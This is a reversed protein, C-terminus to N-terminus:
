EKKTKSRTKEKTPQNLITGEAFEDMESNYQPLAKQQVHANTPGRLNDYEKKVMAATGLAGMILGWPGLLASVAWFAKLGVAYGLAKTVTKLPGRSWLCDVFTSNGLKSRLASGLGGCSVYTEVMESSPSSNPTFIMGGISIRQLNPLRRKYKTFVRTWDDGIGLERGVVVGKDSSVVLEQLGVMYRIKDCDFVDFWADQTLKKQLIMPVRELDENQMHPVFLTDNILITGKATFELQTILSYDGSCYESIQTMLIETLERRNFMTILTGKPQMRFINEVGERSLKPTFSQKEQGKLVNDAAAGLKSEVEKQKINTILAKTQTEYQIYLKDVNLKIQKSQTEITKDIDVGKEALKNQLAYINTYQNTLHEYFQKLRNWEVQLGQLSSQSSLVAGFSKFQEFNGQLAQMKKQLESDAEVDASITEMTDSPLITGFEDIEEVTTNEPVDADEETDFLTLDESYNQQITSKETTQTYISQIGEISTSENLIDAFPNGVDSDSFSQVSTELMNGWINRSFKGAAGVDAQFIGEISMDALYDEVTEYNLKTQYNIFSLLMDYLHNFRQVTEERSLNSCSMLYDALGGFGIEPNLEMNGNVERLIDNYLVKNKLAEPVRKYMEGVCGTGDACGFAGTNAAGKYDPANEDYDNELLTLYSKFVTPVGGTSNRFTFYGSIKADKLKDNLEVDKITAGLEGNVLQTDVVFDEQAKDSTFVEKDYKYDKNSNEHYIGYRGILINSTLSLARFNAPLYDNEILPAQQSIMIFRVKGTKKDTELSKIGKGVDSSGSYPNYLTNLNTIYKYVDALKKAAAVEEASKKPTKLKSDSDVEELLIRLQTIMATLPLFVEDYVALKLKALEDWIFYVCQMDIGLSNMLEKGGDVKVTAARFSNFAFILQLLKGTKITTLTEIIKEPSDFITVQKEVLTTTGGTSKEKEKYTFNKLLQLVEPDRFFSPLNQVTRYRPQISAFGKVNKANADQSVIRLNTGYRKNFAQEFRWLLIATDPKCDLYLFGTGRAIMTDMLNLTLVGKGSRSAAFISMGFTEDSELNIKFDAGDLTKGLVCSKDGNLADFGKGYLRRFATYGFDIKAYYATLDLIIKAYMFNTFAKDPKISIQTSEIDLIMKANTFSSDLKSKQAMFTTFCPRTVTAMEVGVSAFFEIQYTEVCVPLCCFTLPKLLYKFVCKNIEHIKAKDTLNDEKEIKHQLNTNAKNIIDKWFKHFSMYHMLCNLISLRIGKTAEKGKYQKYKLTYAGTKLDEDYFVGISSAYCAQLNVLYQASEGISQMEFESIDQISIGLVLNNDEAYTKFVEWLESAFHSRPTSYNLTSTNEDLEINEFVCTTENTYTAKHIYSMGTTQEEYVAGLYKQKVMESYLNDTTQMVLKMLSMYLAPFKAKLVNEFPHKTFDKAVEQSVIPTEEVVEAKVLAFINGVISQWCTECVKPVAKGMFSMAIDDTKNETGKSVYYYFKKGQTEKQISATDNIYLNILGEDLYKLFADIGDPIDQTKGSALNYLFTSTYLGNSAPLISEIKNKSFAACILQMLASINSLYESETVTKLYTFSSLDKQTNTEESTKIEINIEGM